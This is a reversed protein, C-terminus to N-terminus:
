NKPASRDYLFRRRPPESLLSKSSLNSLRIRLTPSFTIKNYKQFKKKKNNFTYKNSFILMDNFM